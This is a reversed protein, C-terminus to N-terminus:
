SRGAVEGHYFIFDLIAQIISLRLQRIGEALWLDAAACTSDISPGFSWSCRTKGVLISPMCYGRVMDTIREMEVSTLCCGLKRMNESLAQERGVVWAVHIAVLRMDVGFDLKWLGPMWPRIWPHLISLLDYKDAAIVLNYLCRPSVEKPAPELTDHVISLLIEMPEPEDKPLNVVWDDDAPKAESWPGFLM